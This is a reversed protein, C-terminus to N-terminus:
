LLFAMIEVVFVVFIGDGSGGDVRSVGDGLPYIYLLQSSQLLDNVSQYWM